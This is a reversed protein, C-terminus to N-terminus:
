DDMHLKGTTVCPVCVGVCVCVCVCVKAQNRMRMKGMSARIRVFKLELFGGTRVCM